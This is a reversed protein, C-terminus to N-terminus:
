ALLDLRLEGIVMTNAQARSTFVLGTDEWHAGAVLREQLQRVEHKRLATVVPEPLGVTRRSTSSMPEAIEFVGDICQLASRVMLQEAELDIGRWPLGLVEGQRLGVALALYYLAELRDGKIADVFVRAEDPEPSKGNFSRSVTMDNTSASVCPSM